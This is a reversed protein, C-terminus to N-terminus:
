VPPRLEHPAGVRHKPASSTREDAKMYEFLLSALSIPRNELHNVWVELGGIHTPRARGSSSRDVQLYWWLRRSALRPGSSGLMSGALADQLKGHRLTQKCYPHSPHTEILSRCLATEHHSSLAQPASTPVTLKFPPMAMTRAPEARAPRWGSTKPASSTLENAKMCEFWCLHSLDSSKRSPQGLSGHWGNTTTQYAWLQQPRSTLVVPPSTFGVSGGFLRAFVGSSCTSAQWPPTNAQLLLAISTFRDFLLLSGNRPSILSFPPYHHDCRAQFPTNADYQCGYCTRPALGINPPCV